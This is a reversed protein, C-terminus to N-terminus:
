SPERRLARWLERDGWLPRVRAQDGDGILPNCIGLRSRVWRNYKIEWAEPPDAQAWDLLADANKHFLRELGQYVLCMYLIARAVEGRTWSPIVWQRQRDLGADCFTQDEHTVCSREVIQDGEFDFPWDGREHNSTRHCPALNFPNVTAGFRAAKPARQLARKLLGKPIIHEISLGGERLLDGVELRSYLLTADQTAEFFAWFNEYREDESWADYPVPSTYVGGALQVFESVKM